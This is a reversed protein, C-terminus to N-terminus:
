IIGPVGPSDIITGKSRLVMAQAPTAKHILTEEVLNLAINLTTIGEKINEIRM